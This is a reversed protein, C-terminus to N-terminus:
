RRLHCPAARALVRRAPVPSDARWALRDQNIKLALAVLAKGAAASGDAARRDATQRREASRYPAAAPLPVARTVSLVLVAFWTSAM